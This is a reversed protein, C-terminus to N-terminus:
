PCHKVQNQTSSPSLGAHNAHEGVAEAWDPMEPSFGPHYRWLVGFPSAVPSNGDRSGGGAQESQNRYPASSIM